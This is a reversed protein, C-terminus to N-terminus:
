CTFDILKFFCLIIIGVNRGPYNHPLVKEEDQGVEQEEQGEEQEEQGEGALVDRACSAGPQPPGGM